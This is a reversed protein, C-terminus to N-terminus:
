RGDYTRKVTGWDLPVLATECQWYGRSSCLASGELDDTFAGLQFRTSDTTCNVTFSLVCITDSGALEYGVTDFGGVRVTHDGNLAAAKTNWNRLIPGPRFGSFAARDAEFTLDMGLAQLLATGTALIPVQLECTGTCNRHVELPCVEVAHVPRLAWGAFGLAVLLPHIPTKRM